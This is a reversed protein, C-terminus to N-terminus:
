KYSYGIIRDEMYNSTVLTLFNLQMLLTMRKYFLHESLMSLSNDKLVFVWFYMLVRELLMSTLIKCLFIVKLYLINNLIFPPFHFPSVM